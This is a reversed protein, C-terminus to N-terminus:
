GAEATRTRDGAVHRAILDVLEPVVSPALDHGM